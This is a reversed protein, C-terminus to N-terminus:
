ICECEPPISVEAAHFETERGLTATGFCEKALEGVQGELERVLSEDVIIGALWQYPQKGPQYKM